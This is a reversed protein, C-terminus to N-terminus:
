TYGAKELARMIAKAQHATGYILQDNGDPLARAFLLFGHIRDRDILENVEALTFVPTKPQAQPEPEPAPPFPNPDVFHDTM